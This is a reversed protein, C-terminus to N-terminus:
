RREAWKLIDITTDGYSIIPLGDNQVAISTRWMVKVNDVNEIEWVDYSGASVPHAIKLVPPSYTSYSIYIDGNSNTAMNTDSDSDSGDNVVVMSWVGGDRHFFRVKGNARDAVLPKGTVPDIVLSAFVGIGTVGEDITEISWTSGNWEALKLADIRSDGDLDDSYAIVPYGTSDFALSKYKAAADQEVYQKDWGSDNKCALKLGSTKGQSGTYAICPNGDPGYVLSTVDNYTGNREIVETNWSSGNLQSFYLKGWGYSISPTSTVPDFALSVGPGGSDVVMRNWTSGDWQAFKVNGNSEDSYAIAPYETGPELAISQYFGVRDTDDVVGTLWLSDITRATATNSIESPNGSEDIVRLAFYFETGSALGTVLMSEATGPSQPSPEGDVATATDWNADIITGDTRYRLDYSFAPGSSFDAGDDASATWQLEIADATASGPFYALDSVAAPEIDDTPPPEVGGGVAALANLRGGSVTIGDLSPLPDVAGM